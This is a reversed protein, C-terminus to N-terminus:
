DQRQEHRAIRLLETQPITADYSVVPDVVTQEPLVVVLAAVHGDCPTVAIHCVNAHSRGVSHCHFYGGSDLRVEYRRPSFTEGRNTAKFFAQKVAWIQAAAQPDAQAAIWQREPQTYWPDIPRVSIREPQVLDVGLRLNQQRAMAVLVGTPTHAISLSLPLHSGDCYVRPRSRRQFEDTSLVSVGAADFRRYEGQIVREAMLRKVLWRGALWGNRYRRDALSDLEIQEYESLHQVSRGSESHPLPLYRLDLTPM